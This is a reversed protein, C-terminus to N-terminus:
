TKVKNNSYKVNKFTQKLKETGYDNVNVYNKEEKKFKNGVKITENKVRNTWLVSKNLIKITKPKIDKTKITNM